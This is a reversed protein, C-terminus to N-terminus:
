YPTHPGASSNTTHRGSQPNPPPGRTGFQKVDLLSGRGYNIQSSGGFSPSSSIFLRSGVDVTSCADNDLARTRQELLAIRSRVSTASTISSQNTGSYTSSASALSRTSPTQSADKADIAFTSSKHIINTSAKSPKSTTHRVSPPAPLNDQSQVVVHSSIFQEPSVDVSSSSSSDDTTIGADSPSLTPTTCQSGCDGDLSSRAEIILRLESASARLRPESINFMSKARPRPTVDQHPTAAASTPRRYSSPHLITRSVRPLGEPASRLTSTGYYTSSALGDPGLSSLDGPVFQDRSTTNTSTPPSVASQPRIKVRLRDRLGPSLDLGRSPLATSRRAHPTASNNVKFPDEIGPNSPDINMDLNQISQFRITNEGDEGDLQASGLIFDVEEDSDGDYQATRPRPTSPGEGNEAEDDSQLTDPDLRYYPTGYDEEDEEASSDASSASKDVKVQQIAQTSITHPLPRGPMTHSRPRPGRAHPITRSPRLQTHVNASLPSPRNPSHSYRQEAGLASMWDQMAEKGEPRSRDLIDRALEELTQSTTQTAPVKGKGILHLDLSELASSSFSVAKKRKPLGDHSQGRSTSLASKPSQRSPVPISPGSTPPLHSQRPFLVGGGTSNYNPPPDLSIFNVIRIPLDIHVDSSLSGASATVRVAFGVEVLQSRSISM